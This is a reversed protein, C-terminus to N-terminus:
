GKKQRAKAWRVKQAAAIRARGEPSIVRAKKGTVLAKPVRGRRGTSPLSEEGGLLAALEAQLTQIQEALVVAKKLQDVTPQQSPIM